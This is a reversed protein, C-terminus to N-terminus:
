AAKRYYRHHLGGLIPESKIEGLEVPEVERQEPCDKGLSLHTRSPHYYKDIYEQLIRKLHKENIVIVHDLCDRRFTGIVREVYPNQWPLRLAILVEDIKMSHVRMKFEHGYIGDRDRIM